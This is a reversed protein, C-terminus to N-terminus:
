YFFTQHNLSSPALRFVISFHDHCQRFSIEGIGGALHNPHIASHRNRPQLSNKILFLSLVFFIYTFFSLASFSLTSPQFSVALFALSEYGAYPPMVIPNRLGYISNLFSFSMAIRSLQPPVYWYCFLRYVLVRFSYM